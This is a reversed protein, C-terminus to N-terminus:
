TSTSDVTECGLEISVITDIDNERNRIKRSITDVDAVRDNETQFLVQVDHVPQLIVGGQRYEKHRIGNKLNRRIDQKLAQLRM